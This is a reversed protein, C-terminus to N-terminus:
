PFTVTGRRKFETQAMRRRVKQIFGKNFGMGALKAASYKKDVMYHLLRDADKYLFGLEDEDTQGPWLGASPHKQLIDEPVGLSAALQWVHTKYLGSIPNVACGSDGYLTFYGLLIETRNGAGLVIGNFVKSQDYLVMMRQRAMMNGKRVRCAGPVRRFYADVMPAIDILKFRIGLKKVLRRIGPLDDRRKGYPLFLGLVNKAGLAEKALSAALSSDVGGSLGLVAKKFGCSLVSRRIFKVLKRITSRTDMKLEKM